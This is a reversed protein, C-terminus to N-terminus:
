WGIYSNPFLFTSALEGVVEALGGLLGIRDKSFTAVPLNVTLSDSSEKPEQPFSVLHETSCDINSSLKM